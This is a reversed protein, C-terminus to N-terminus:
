KWIAEKEKEGIERRECFNLHKLAYSEDLKWFPIRELVMIGIIILMGSLQDM